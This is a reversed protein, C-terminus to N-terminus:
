GRELHEEEGKQPEAEQGDDDDSRNAGFKVRRPTRVKGGPTGQGSAAAAQWHELPHIGHEKALAGFLMSRWGTMSFIKQEAALQQYEDILRDIKGDSALSPEVAEYFFRLIEKTQEAPPQESIAVDSKAALVSGSARRPPTDPELEVAPSGADREPESEASSSRPSVHADEIPPADIFRLFTEFERVLPVRVLAQIWRDLEIKRSQSLTDTSPLMSKGPFPPLLGIEDGFADRLTARLEAFASYRRFTSWVKPPASGFLPNVVGAKCRLEYVAAGGSSERRWSPIDVSLQDM